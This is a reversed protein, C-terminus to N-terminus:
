IVFSLPIIQEAGEISVRLQMNIRGNQAIEINVAAVNTYRADRQVTQEVITAIRTAADGGELLLGVTNVLGYEPHLPLEGKGTSLATLIAQRVNALGFQLKLDGNPGIVIDTTVDDRAIDVGFSYLAKDLRKLEARRPEPQDAYAPALTLPIKVFSFESLTEPQYVRMYSFHVTRLKSLDTAGSLFLTATGDLNDIFNEVMRTEEPVVRSGIRVTAGVRFKNQESIPVRVSAASSNETMFVKSGSLDLYPPKLKNVTVLEFWLSKDGLYDQAMQELSQEFPVSIFSRYINEARVDSGLRQLNENSFALLNPEVEKQYKFELLIGEIFQELELVDAIQELDSVFFDRQKPSASRRKFKDYVPDSLGIFDFAIDRQTKLFKLMNEFDVVELESARKLEDSVYRTEADTLSMQDLFVTELFESAISFIESSRFANVQADTLWAQYFTDLRTLSNELFEDGNALGKFSSYFQSEWRFAMWPWRDAALKPFLSLNLKQQNRVAIYLSVDTLISLRDNYKVKLAATM